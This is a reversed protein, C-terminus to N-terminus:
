YKKRKGENIGRVTENRNTGESEDVVKITSEPALESYSSEVENAESAKNKSGKPRAM